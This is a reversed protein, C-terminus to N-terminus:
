SLSSSVLELKSPPRSFVLKWCLLLPDETVKAHCSDPHLHSPSMLLLSDLKHVKTIILHHHHRPVLPWLSLPSFNSFEPYTRFTSDFPCASLDYFPTNSSRLCYYFNRIQDSFLLFIQDPPISDVNVFFLIYSISSKAFFTFPITKFM